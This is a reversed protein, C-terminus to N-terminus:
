KSVRRKPKPRKTNKVTNKAENRQERETATKTKHCPKCMVTLGDPECFLRTVFPGIDDDSSISGAPTTHDLQTLKGLFWEKCESCQYEWKQSKNTGKYPRRANNKAIYCSPYRTFARRLASRIFSRRKGETWTGGCRTKPAKAM